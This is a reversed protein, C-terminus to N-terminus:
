KATAALHFQHLTEAIAQTSCPDFRHADLFQMMELAAENCMYRNAKNPLIWVLFGFVLRWDYLKGQNDVAWNAAYVPDTHLPTLHWKPTHVKIRKFRVGGRRGGRRKSEIPIHELGTSSACWYEGAENPECTGDPMLHDVGDGPMFVVETHSARLERQGPVAELQLAQRWGAIRFRILINGLGMIGARTGIYSALKM